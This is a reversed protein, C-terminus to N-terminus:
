RTTPPAQGGAEYSLSRTNESGERAPLQPKKIGSRLVQCVWVRGHPRFYSSVPVQCEGARHNLIRFPSRLHYAGGPRRPLVFPKGSVRAQILDFPRQREALGIVTPSKQRRGGREQEGKGRDSSPRPGRDGAPRQLVRPRCGGQPLAPPGSLHSSNSRDILCLKEAWACRGRLARPGGGIVM